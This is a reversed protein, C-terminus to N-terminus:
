FSIVRTINNKNCPKIVCRCLTKHSLSLYTSYIKSILLGIGEKICLCKICYTSSWAKVRFSSRDIINSSLFLANGGDILLSCCLLYPYVVRSQTFNDRSGAHRGTGDVHYSGYYSDLRDFM